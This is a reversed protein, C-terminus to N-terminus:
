DPFHLISRYYFPSSCNTPYVAFRKTTIEIENLRVRQYFQNREIEFDLFFKILKDLPNNGSSHPTSAFSSTQPIPKM